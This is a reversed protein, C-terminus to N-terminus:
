PKGESEGCSRVSFNLGLLLDAAALADSALRLRDKCAAARARARGDDAPRADQQLPSQTEPSSM